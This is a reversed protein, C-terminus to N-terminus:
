GSAASPSGRPPPSSTPRRRRSPRSAGLRRRSPRLGVPERRDRRRARGGRRGARQLRDDRSGPLSGLRDPGRDGEPADAAAAPGADLHLGADRGSRSPGRPLLRPLRRRRAGELGAVRTLLAPRAGRGGRRDLRPALALQLRRDHVGAGRRGGAGRATESVARDAALRTHREFELVDAAPKGAKVPNPGYPCCPLHVNEVAVVRDRAVEAYAFRVGDREVSFLPYRSILHMTEDVYPLGAADALRQLDGEPEQVGVVDADAARIAEAVQGFDVSVGGYWINFTM